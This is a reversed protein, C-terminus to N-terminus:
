RASHSVKGLAWALVTEQDSGKKISEYKKDSLSVWYMDTEVSAVQNRKLDYWYIFRTIKDSEPVRLAETDMVRTIPVALLGDGSFDQVESVRAFVMKRTFPTRWTFPNLSVENWRSVLEHANQGSCFSSHLKREWKRENESDWWAYGIAAAM